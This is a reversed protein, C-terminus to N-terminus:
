SSTKIGFILHPLSFLSMQLNPTIKNFKLLFGKNTDQGHGEQETRACHSDGRPHNGSKSKRGSAPSQSCCWTGLKAM